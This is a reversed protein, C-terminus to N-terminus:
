VNPGEESCFGAKILDKVIAERVYFDLHLELINRLLEVRQQYREEIQKPNM